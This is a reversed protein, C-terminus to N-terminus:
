PSLPRRFPPSALVHLLGTRHDGQPAGDWYRSDSSDTRNDGMVFNTPTIESHM